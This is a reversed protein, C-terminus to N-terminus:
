NKFKELDSGSVSCIEYHLRRAEVIDIINGSRDNAIRNPLSILFLHM